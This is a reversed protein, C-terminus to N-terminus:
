RLEGGLLSLIPSLIGCSGGTKGNLCACKASVDNGKRSFSCIGNAGCGSSCSDLFAGVYSAVQARAAVLPAPDSPSSAYWNACHAPPPTFLPLSRPLLIAITLHSPTLSTCLLLMCQNAILIAPVSPSLDSTVSLAQWPDLMGNAFVTNSTM